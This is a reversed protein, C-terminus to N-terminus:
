QGAINRYTVPKDYVGSKANESAGAHTDYTCDLNRRREGADYYGQPNADDGSKQNGGSFLATHQRGSEIFLEAYNGEDGM